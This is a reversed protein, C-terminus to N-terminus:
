RFALWTGLYNIKIFIEGSAQGMVVDTGAVVFDLDGDGDLDAFTPRASSGIDIDNFLNDEGTKKTFVLTSGSSENLYYKLTGWNIGLVLDPKGDGSIDAFAPHHSSDPIRANFPNEDGKKETFVIRSGNSDNRYYSFNGVMKGVILDLDGDGDMDVFTPTSYNHVNVAGFPNNVGTQETFVITSGISENLYFTLTGNTRGMILDIKNDGNIDAFTPKLNSGASIGNFPNDNGTKKTFVLGTKTSENLYYNLTGNAEGVVLDLKGDGSIDALAPSPVRWVDDLGNFPNYSKKQETFITESGTSENLYYILRREKGGVVLDTKGDEDIDAFAPAAYTLENVDYFPDDRRTKLNFEITSGASENRYYFVEGRMNGVVLDLKGDEDFDTFTPASYNGVHFDSANFPNQVGTKPTFVITDNISENLYFNLQGNRQGVVLDPKGDGGIDVFTPASLKGGEINDFPDNAGKREIFGSPDQRYYKLKGNGTGVVLDLDGDKDLDALAPASYRGADIGDFPNDAGTLETFLTAADAANKRYYKLTGDEIGVVLDQDGDGDFDVFTPKTYPDIFLGEFLHNGKFQGVTFGVPIVYEIVKNMYGTKSLTLTVRCEGGHVGTIAGTSRDVTCIREDASVYHTDADSPDVGTLPSPTPTGGISLTSGYSGPIASIVGPPDIRFVRSMSRYGTKSATVTLVCETQGSFSLIRSANDWACDGSRKRILYSDAAPVSVPDAIGRVPTNTQAMLPLASWTLSTFLELPTLRFDKSKTAYGTKVATVTLVCEVSGTFTLTNGPGSWTCDGSKRVITYSDAAPVSVPDSLGSFSSDKRASAPFDPWNIATLIGLPTISFEKSKSIYGAKIATVTLVCETIGSFSLTDTNNDRACDGSKRVVTYSDAAPVSAPDAIGTIPIDTRALSPFATWDISDFIGLPTISFDRLKSTYRNKEATVTLICETIGNFSLTDTNDDWACDGSKRVVTYSDAAPNSVPNAIGAIPTDERAMTPFSPWNLSTFVWMPSISFDKSFPTYGDKTVTITLVCEETTGSFSLTDTSDDWVCDGSKKVIAHGDAVQDSVPDDIVPDLVPDDISTTPTDDDIDQAVISDSKPIHCYAISREPTICQWTHEENTERYNRFRGNWCSADSNGNYVTMGGENEQCRAKEMNWTSCHQPGKSNVCNWTHYGGRVRNYSGWPEYDQFNGAYCSANSMGKFVVKRNERM